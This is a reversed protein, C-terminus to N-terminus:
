RTRPRHAVSDATPMEARDMQSRRKLAYLAYIDVERYRIRTGVRYFRPGKGLMRWNALTGMSLQLRAAAQRSTLLRGIQQQNMTYGDRHDRTNCDVMPGILGGGALVRGATSWPDRYGVVSAACWHDGLAGSIFANM